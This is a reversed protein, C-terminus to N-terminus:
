IRRLSRQLSQAASAALAGHHGSRVGRHYSALMAYKRPGLAGHSPVLCLRPSRSLHPLPCRYACPPYPPPALVPAYPLLARSARECSPSATNLHSLKVPPYITGHLLHRWEQAAGCLVKVGGGESDAAVCERGVLLGVLDNQAVLPLPGIGYRTRFSLRRNRRGGLTACSGQVLVACWCGKEQRFVEVKNARRKERRIAKLRLPEWM